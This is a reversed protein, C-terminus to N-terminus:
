VACVRIVAVRMVVGTERPSGAGPFGLGQQEQGVRAHEWGTGICFVRAEGGFGDGGADAAQKLDLLLLLEEGGFLFLQVFLEAQSM